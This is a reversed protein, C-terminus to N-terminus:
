GVSKLAPREQAAYRETYVGRTREPVLGAIALMAIDAADNDSLGLFAGPALPEGFRITLHGGEEYVGVPVIPVHRRDFCALV